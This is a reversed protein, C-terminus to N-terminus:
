LEWQSTNVICVICFGTLIFIPYSLLPITYSLNSSIFHHPTPNFPIPQFALVPCHLISHSLIPYSFIQYSVIPYCCCSLIPFFPIPHSPIPYALDTSSIFYSLYFSLKAESLSLATFSPNIIRDTSLSTVAPIAHM